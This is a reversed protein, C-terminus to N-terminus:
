AHQTREISAAATAVDRPYTARARVLVLVAVALPALMILFTTQLGDQGGGALHDALVGFLLPAIAEVPQRVVTRVAEARGWLTPHMIDLRAADLPPNLAALFFAAAGLTLVGWAASTVLLAPVFMVCSGALAAAGITVRSTLRGSGASADSLRGSLLVGGVAFVGLILALTSAFGQGVGYQGKVFEVGFARVGAFFFYGSAGAIILIVNTRIRLVYRVAHWLSWGHPDDKIVLDPDPEVADSAAAASQARSMVPAPTEADEADGSASQVLEAGPTLQGRGARGPEPLRWLLLALAVAPLSLVLFPARWSISAASGAVTFGIGAGVLEGTLVYGWIRGRERPAFFDGILSATAPAAIAVVAGLACRILLLQLFSGASASVAMVVAWMGVAGALLRTRNVRDVLSGFPISAAAGVLGTVAALLGLEAHSLNLAARLQTASAGITAQDASALGLVAALLLVVHRRAPGGLAADLRQRSDTVARSLQEVLM